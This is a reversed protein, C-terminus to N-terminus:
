LYIFVDSRNSKCLNIVQQQLENNQNLLKIIIENKSENETILIQKEIDKTKEETENIDNNIIPCKQRHVYISQKYSYTKGCCCVYKKPPKKLLNPDNNKHKLTSTHRDWDKKKSCGFDCYICFFKMANKPPKETM